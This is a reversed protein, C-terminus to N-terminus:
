QGHSREKDQKVIELVKTKQESYEYLRVRECAVDFVLKAGLPVNLHRSFEGDNIFAIVRTCM